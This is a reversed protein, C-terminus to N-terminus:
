APVRFAAQDLDVIDNQHLESPQLLNDREVSNPDGQASNESPPECRLRYLHECM